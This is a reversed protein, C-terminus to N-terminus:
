AFGQRDVSGSDQCSLRPGREDETRGDDTFAQGARRGIGIAEVRREDSELPKADFLELHHALIQAIRRGAERVVEGVVRELDTGRADVSRDLKHVVDSLEGPM